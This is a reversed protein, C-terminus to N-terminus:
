AGCALLSVGSKRVAGLLLLPWPPGARRCCCPPARGRRRAAYGAAARCARCATHRRPAGSARRPTTLSSCAATLAANRHPADHQPCCGRRVWAVARHGEGTRTRSETETLWVRILNRWCWQVVCLSSTCFPSMDSSSSRRAVSASGPAHARARVRAHACMKSSVTHQEQAALAAAPLKKSASLCNRQAASMCAYM